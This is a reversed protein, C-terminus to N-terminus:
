AKIKKEKPLLILYYYGLCLFGLVFPILAFHKVFFWESIKNEDINLFETCMWFANAMIWFMVALNHWLESAIYKSQWVIYIAISLTPIIMIVGLPKFTLCWCMDKILWFVIHLNEIIRHKKPISYNETEVKNNLM